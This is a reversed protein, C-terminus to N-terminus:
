ASDRPNTPKAEIKMGSAKGTPASPEHLEVGVLNHGKFRVELYNQLWLIQGMVMKAGSTASVFLIFNIVPAWFGWGSRGTDHM